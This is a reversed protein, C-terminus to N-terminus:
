VEQEKTKDTLLGMSGSPWIDHGSSTMRLWNCAMEWSKEDYGGEPSTQWTLSNVIWSPLCIDGIVLWALGMSHLSHLWIRYASLCRSDRKAYYFETTIYCHIVATVIDRKVLQVNGYLNFFLLIARNCGCWPEQKRLKTQSWVWVGVRDITTAPHHWWWGIVPWKEARKTTDGRLLM